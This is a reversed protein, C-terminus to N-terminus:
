GSALPGDYALILGAMREGEPSSVLAAAAGVADPAAPAVERLVRFAAPADDLAHFVVGAFLEPEIPQLRYEFSTVVGFNGGGGRLSWFLDPNEDRSARLLRGEATVVDAAILNDCAIGRSRMLWGFGGGLTLGAIGTTSVTGGTTALGFALTEHDLEGWTVGGEARVTRAVPDVRIGKMRSLDIVLGDDCCGNGAVNHGGGRVAVPLGHDRAFDVSAIVDAVGACRAIMAPQRDIMANWVRRADDYGADGPLILDGRLGDAFAAVIDADLVLVSTGASSANTSM